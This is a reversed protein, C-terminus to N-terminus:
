FGQLFIEIQRRHRLIHVIAHEYLQEIDYQQNWRTLIKKKNDTENVVLNPYDVFLQENYKFMADIEQQYEKISNYTTMPPYQINEGMSNRTEIAYYYGANIVHSLISQFSKCRVDMTEADLITTLETQPIQGIVNQFENIAKEYEDLLAGIAGNKRYNM